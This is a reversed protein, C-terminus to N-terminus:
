DTPPTGNYANRVDEFVRIYRARAFMAIHEQSFRSAADASIKAEFV